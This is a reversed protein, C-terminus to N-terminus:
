ISDELPFELCDILLKFQGNSWAGGITYITDNIYAYCSGFKGYKTSCYRDNIRKLNVSKNLMLQKDSYEGYVVSGFNRSFVNLSDNEMSDMMLDVVSTNDIQSELSSSRLPQSKLHRSTWVKCTLDLIAVLAEDVTAIDSPDISNNISCYGGHFYVKDGMLIIAHNARQCCYKLPKVYTWSFTSFNFLWLENLIQKSENSGGHILLYPGPIGDVSSDIKMSAHFAAPSPYIADQPTIEEALVENSTELYNGPGSKIIFMKICYLKNSTRIQDKDEYFGGFMHINIENDHVESKLFTLSHGFRKLPHLSESIVTLKKVKCSVTDLVRAESNIEFRGNVLRFGGCYFVYRDAVCISAASNWDFSGDTDIRDFSDLETDLVYLNKNALIEPDFVWDLLPTESPGKSSLVNNSSQTLGGFIYVRSDVSIANGYILPPCATKGFLTPFQVVLDVHDPSNLDEKGEFYVSDSVNVDPSWVNSTNFSIRNAVTALVKSFYYYNLKEIRQQQLEMLKKTDNPVKSKSLEAKKENAKELYDNELLNRYRLFQGMQFYSSDKYMRM